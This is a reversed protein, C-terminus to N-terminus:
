IWETIEKKSSGYPIGFVVGGRKCYRCFPKPRILFDYVEDISKVNNINIYDQGTIELKTNFYGNFHEICAITNCPYIAGNKMRLCSNVQNCIYFSNKLKQKGHLDIPYKWMEKVPTTAGGVYDFRIGYSEATKKIGEIDLRIPYRSLSICVNNRKCSEWFVEPMKPLLVGNTIFTIETGKFYLRAIDFLETLRPHLLPEGGTFCVSDLSGETLEALRGMDKAYTEVDLFCEKALPGFATCCKCGLNCHEVAPIDIKMSTRRRHKQKAAIKFGAIAMQRFLWSKEPIIKVINDRIVRLARPYYDKHANPLEKKQEVAMVLELLKKGPPLSAAKMEPRPPYFPRPAGSDAKLRMPSPQEGRILGFKGM